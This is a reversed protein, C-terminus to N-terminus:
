LEDKGVARCGAISARREEEPNIRHGASLGLPKHAPQRTMSAGNACLNIQSFMAGLDGLSIVRTCYFSTLGYSRCGTCAGGQNESPDPTDLLGSVLNLGGKQNLPM